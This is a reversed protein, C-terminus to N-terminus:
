NVFIRYQKIYQIGDIDVWVLGYPHNYVPYGLLGIAKCNGESMEHEIETKSLPNNQWGRIYPDKNRGLATLPWDM